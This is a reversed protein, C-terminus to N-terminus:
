DAMFNVDDPDTGYLGLEPFESIAIDLECQLKRIRLAYKLAEAEDQKIGHWDRAAIKYARWCKKLAGWTQGYSYGLSNPVEETGDLTPRKIGKARDEYPLVLTRKGRKRTPINTAGRAVEGLKRYRRGM